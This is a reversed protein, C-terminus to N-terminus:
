EKMRQLFTTSAKVRLGRQFVIGEDRIVIRGEGFVIRTGRFVIEARRIMRSAPLTM